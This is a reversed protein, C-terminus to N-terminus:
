GAREGGFEEFPLKVPSLLWSVGDDEQKVHWLLLGTPPIKFDLPFIFAPLWLLGIEGDGHWGASKFRERAVTLYRELQEEPLPLFEGPSRIFHLNDIWEYGYVHFARLDNAPYDIAGYKPITYAM